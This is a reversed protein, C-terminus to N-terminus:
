VVPVRPEHDGDVKREETSRRRSLGVPAARQRMRPEMVQVHKKKRIVTSIVGVWVLALRAYPSEFYQLVEPNEQAIEALCEDVTSSVEPHRLSQGFGHLEMGCLDPGYANFGKEFGTACINHVMRLAGLTIVKGGARPDVGVSKAMDIKVSEEMVEALVKTLQEKNMRKLKTDSYQLEIQYKDVVKIINARISEKSNRKPPGDPKPEDAHLLQNKLKTEEGPEM